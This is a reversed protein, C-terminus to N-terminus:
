EKLRADSEYQRRADDYVLFAAEWAKGKSNLKPGQIYSISDFLLRGPKYIIDNRAFGYARTSVVRLRYVDEMCNTLVGCDTGAGIRALVEVRPVGCGVAFGGVYYARPVKIKPM